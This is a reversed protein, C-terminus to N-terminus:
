KLAKYTFKQGGISAELMLGSKEQSFVVVGNRYNANASAGAKVAIASVQGSFEVKNQRFRDAADKNEFFIIERYAQGGAQAGVTVQVMQATGVPMGKVYVAGKGAAGGVGVGGKGINPFIAYGASHKFLNEMSPDAKLFSAKAKKSDGLIREQSDDQAMVIRPLFLGSLIMLLIIPRVTSTIKM